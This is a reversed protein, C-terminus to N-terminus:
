LPDVEVSVAHQTVSRYGLISLASFLAMRKRGTAGYVRYSAGTHRCLLLVSPLSLSILPILTRQHKSALKLVWDQIM